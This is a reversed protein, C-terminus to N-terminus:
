PGILRVSRVLALDLERTRPSVDHFGVAYSHGGTTWAIVVHGMFMSGDNTAPPVTVWRARWGHIHVWGGLQERAGPYWAPGNILRTYSREPRPSAVLALHQKGAVSSGAVWGRWARDCLVPGIIRLQCRTPRTPDGGFPTMGPLLRTPCPVAYGVARATRACETRVIKPAAVLEATGKSAASPTGSPSRSAQARGGGTCSALACVLTVTLVPHTM